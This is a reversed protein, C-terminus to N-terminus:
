NTIKVLIKDNKLAQPKSMTFKEKLSQHYTYEIQNETGETKYDTLSIHNQVAHKHSM